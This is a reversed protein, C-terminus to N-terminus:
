PELPPLAAEPGVFDAPPTFPRSAAGYPAYRSPIGNVIVCLPDIIDAVARSPFLGKMQIAWVLTDTKLEPENGNTLMFRHLQNAPLQAMGAVKGMDEPRVCIALAAMAGPPPNSLSVPQLSPDVPVNPIGMGPTAAITPNATETAEPAGGGTRTCAALLVVATAAALFRRLM